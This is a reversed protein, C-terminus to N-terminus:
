AKQPRPVRVCKTTKGGLWAAINPKAGPIRALTKAWGVQWRTGAFVYRQLVANSVAILFSDAEVIIGYARLCDVQDQDHSQMIDGISMDVRGKAPKLTEQTVAGDAIQINVKCSLVHAMCEDHDEAADAKDEHLDFGRVYEAADDTAIPKDSLLMGYGALLMGHQAAFRQGMIGALVHSFTKYNALIVDVKAVARAFLREGYEPTVLELSDRLATWHSSSSGHPALELVTFRSRDADNGLTVRISSVLAAFALQYTQAVGDGGGKVIAGGTFSWSQRLLEIISEVRARTENGTTEFEDFIVPISDAKVMQRLGAETTGGQAYLCAGVDGLAPRILRDMATSKGTGSGGTLWVHPRVPLAGAVRAIALWGALYPAYKPHKWKFRECSAVLPACEEVTLPRDHPKPLQNKTSVYVHRTSFRTIPQPIGDSIIENATNLVVRGRDLWVGSGRLRTSDFPGVRSCAAILDDKAREWDITDDKGNESPYSKEWYDRRALMYFQTHSFSTFKVVARTAFNYVFCTQEDFGLPVFAKELGVVTGLQARLVDLGERCHLDNFDTPRDTDTQFAPLVVAGLAVEAAEAAKAKGPNGPTWQDNDGAVTIAAEPRQRRVERAVDVLNGANFACWVESGTAMHISAGTAYGECIFVREDNGDIRHACGAVRQGAAFLKKGSELIRQYGHLEGKDVDRVPIIVAGDLFSVGFAKVMKRDLYAHSGGTSAVSLAGAARRAAADRDRLRQAEAAERARRLQDKIAAKDERSLRAKEHGKYEWKEGTRWDGAVVITFPKSWGVYWASKSRKGDRNCRQVKGDLILDGSVSLGIESIWSSLEQM